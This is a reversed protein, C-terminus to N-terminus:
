GLLDIPTPSSGDLLNQTVQNNSGLGVSAAYVFQPTAIYSMQASTVKEMTTILIVM